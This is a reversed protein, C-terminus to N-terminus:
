FCFTKAIKLIFAQLFNRKTYLLDFPIEKQFPATLWHGVVRM